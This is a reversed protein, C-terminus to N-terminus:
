LVHHRTTEWTPIQHAYRDTLYAYDHVGLVWVPQLPYYRRCRRLKLYSATDNVKGNAHYHLPTLDLWPLPGGDPLRGKVELWLATEAPWWATLWQAVWPWPPNAAASLQQLCALPDVTTILFDPCYTMTGHAAGRQQTPFSIHTPEYSWTAVWGWGQAATLLRAINREMRSRFYTPGLDAAAGRDIGRYGHTM